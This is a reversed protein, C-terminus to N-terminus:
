QAGVDSRLPQSQLYLQQHQQLRNALANDGHAKALRHADEVFRLAESFNGLEAHAAALLDVAHVDQYQTRECAKTALALAVAGDRLAAQPNTARISALGLLAPLSESDQQLAQEYHLVAQESQDEERLLDAYRCNAVADQPDIRLSEVLHQKGEEVQKLELLAAAM